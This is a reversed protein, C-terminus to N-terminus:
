VINQQGWRIQFHGDEDRERTMLMDFIEFDIGFRELLEADDPAKAIRRTQTKNGALIQQVMPMSFLINGMKM